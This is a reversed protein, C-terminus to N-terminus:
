NPDNDTHSAGKIPLTQLTRSPTAYQDGMRGGSELWLAREIQARAWLLEKVARERFMQVDPVDLAREAKAQGAVSSMYAVMHRKVQQALEERKTRSRTIPRFKPFRLATAQTQISM